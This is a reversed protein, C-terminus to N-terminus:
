RTEDGAAAALSEVEAVVKVAAESDRERIASELSEAATCTRAVAKEIARIKNDIVVTSAHDLRQELDQLARVADEVRLAGASDGGGVVEARADALRQRVRRVRERSEGIRAKRSTGRRVRSSRTYAAFGFGVLGLALIGGVTMGIERRNPLFAEVDIDDAVAVDGLQLDDLRFHLRLRYSLPGPASSLVKVFVLGEAGLMRGLEIRSERDVTGSLLAGQEDLLAELKERELVRFREDEALRTLVARAVVGDDDGEVPAVALVRLHVDSSIAGALEAAARAAAEERLEPTCASLSLLFILPLLLCEPKMM